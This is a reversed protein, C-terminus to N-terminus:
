GGAGARLEGIKKEMRELLGKMGEKKVIERYSDRYNRVMSVGEIVVDYAKWNGSKEFLKYEIPIEVDKTVVLTKVVARKGRVEEGVFEVREDTYAEIRDRYTAELLERFMGTFRKREEASARKWYTALVGQAMTPFDFKPRIQASVREKKTELDLGGDQLITFVSEVMQQVEALPGVAARPSGAAALALLVAAAVTRTARGKM